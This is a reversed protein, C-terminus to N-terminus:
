KGGKIPQATALSSIFVRMASVSRGSGNTFSYGVACVTRSFIKSKKTKM